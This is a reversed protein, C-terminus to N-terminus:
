GAPTAGMGQYIFLILCQLRFGFGSLMKITAPAEIKLKDRAASFPPPGPTIDTDFLADAQTDVGFGGKSTRSLAWSCRLRILSALGDTSRLRMWAWAARVKSLAASFPQFLFLRRSEETNGLWPM